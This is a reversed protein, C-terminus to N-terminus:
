VAARDAPTPSADAAPQLADELTRAITDITAAYERIADLEGDEGWGAIYPISEGGVDLAVSSCVIYTVCDVLVECRERGLEYGLGHAHALEHVLTRVQRNAPGTAVVIQKHKPDCWGGPGNEPLNRIDVSYGLQAAHATLPTILHRHSTGTIPQSPPSLPVPEKGPLPDTMSVDFVPVTRFFTKTEGTEQGDTDCHKVTVPALIRIATEGKRVCRNLELFARFGAVYTPTIGRAACDLAILWQNNLSYRSLGNTARVKIWRQWGDTTLLARAAQEIRERDAKRRADRETDTLPTRNFRHAM